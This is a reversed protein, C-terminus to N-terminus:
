ASSPMRSEGSHSSNLRTSKRDLIKEPVSNLPDSLTFFFSSGLHHEKEFHLAISHAISSKGSGALGTLLFVRCDSEINKAWSIIEALIGVRTDDICCSGLNFRMGDAYTMENVNISAGLIINLITTRHIGFKYM